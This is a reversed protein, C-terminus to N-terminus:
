DQKALVILRMNNSADTCTSLTLEAKGNTERQYFSTDQASTEFKNYITYTLKTGRYDKVYIKDGVKTRKLNSFLAGNRYNHGIVVTNGPQNINEGNPYLVAVAVEIAPGTAEEIIPYNFKISPIEMTGVTAFDKFKGKKSTNPKNTNGENKEVPKSGIENLKENYDIENNDEDEFEVTDGQYSGVFEEAEKANKHKKYQDYGLYSLLGLIAIIIIVLIITLVKSYKSEFM